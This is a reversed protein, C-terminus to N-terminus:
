NVTIRKGAYMDALYQKAQDVTAQDPIMVYVAQSGTSYTTSSADSGNVSYQMIDWGQMDSIQFKVLESIENYSMSTIMYQSVSDLIGTYNKLLESSLAKRLVAEIVKMQNKGRQRDGDSFAHRARAFELAQAGNLYNSGVVFSYNDTTFNYDSYVEVGGLIDIIHEFGTFNIRIYDDVDIGYLMGLTDASVDIGYGGAHTLKDCVGNSISLPVYFDRPTSIMLIQRTDLNATLLINVDSNSNVNATSRTDVGSIYISFVGKKVFNEDKDIAVETEIDKASIARVRSEFDEYGETDTILNIRATNLIIAKIEQNYLAQVMGLVSDYQSTVIAQGVQEQIDEVMLATNEVDLALTGYTYDKADALSQAPDEVLVFVQINDVQIKNGTMGALKNYTFNLYLCAILMIAIMVVSIVKTVLGPVLWRQLIAFIITFVLLVGAAILLYKVPVMDLKVVFGITILGITLQAFCLIYGIVKLLKLLKANKM